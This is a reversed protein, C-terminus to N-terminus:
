ASLLQQDDAIGFLVSKSRNAEEPPSTPLGRSLQIKVVHSVRAGELHLLLNSWLTMVKVDFEATRWKIAPVPM